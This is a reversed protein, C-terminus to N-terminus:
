KLMRIGQALLKGAPQHTTGGECFKACRERESYAITEDSPKPLITITTGSLTYDTGEIMEKEVGNIHRMFKVPTKTMGMVQLKLAEFEARKKDQYRKQRAANTRDESM